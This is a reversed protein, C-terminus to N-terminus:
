PWSRGTRPGRTVRASVIAHSLGLGARAARARRGPSGALRASWGVLPLVSVAPWCVALGGSAVWSGAGDVVVGAGAVVGSASCGAVDRRGARGRRLGVEGPQLGLQALQLGPDGGGLRLQAQLVVLAAPDLDAVVHLARREPEVCHVAPLPM